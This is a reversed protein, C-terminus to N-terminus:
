AARIKALFDDVQGRLQETRVALADAASKVNRAAASTGGIVQNNSFNIDVGVDTGLGDCNPVAATGAAGGRHGAAGLKAGTGGYLGRRHGLRNM